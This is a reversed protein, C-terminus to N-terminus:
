SRKFRSFFGGKEDDENDDPDDNIATPEPRVNLAELTQTLSTTIQEEIPVPKSAPTKKATATPGPEPSNGMSLARVTALRQSASIDLGGAQGEIQTEISVEADPKQGWVNEFEKEMSNQSGKAAPAQPVPAAPPEAKAEAEAEAEASSEEAVRKAVAAAAISLEEGFLTEAM